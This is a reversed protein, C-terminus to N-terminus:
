LDRRELCDKSGPVERQLVSGSLATGRLEYNPSLRDRLNKPDREDQDQFHCGQRAGEPTGRSSYLCMKMPPSGDRQMTVVELGRTM